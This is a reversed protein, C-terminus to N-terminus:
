AVLPRRRRAAVRRIHIKPPMACFSWPPRNEISLFPLLRQLPGRPMAVTHRPATRSDETVRKWMKLDSSRSDLSHLGRAESRESETAVSAPTMGARLTVRSAHDSPRGSRRRADVRVKLL